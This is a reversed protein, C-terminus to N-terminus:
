ANHITIRIDGTDTTIRCTGGTVTEPVDIRGTDTRIIFVKDSLLSGTVDGTDTDVTLGAADCGEFLVDGTSRAVSITEAAIVNKLTIDGTSGTTRVSKCSVDTLNAKGTSVAVSLEGECAASLVEAHGTSVTLELAGASLGELRIDGTSAAIRIPGAASARCDVDGTGACLEASGFTFDAPITIDGTSVEIFLSDYEAQPLYVTITQKGSSFLSIHDYWKRDDTKDVTLTGDLVSVTHKEKEREQFVVRCRGDDSLRLDVDETDGRVSISDFAESVEVTRTETKGGGFLSFSGCGAAMTLCIAAAAALIIRGAKRLRNETTKNM